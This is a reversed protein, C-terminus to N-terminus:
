EPLVALGSQRAADTLGRDFTALTVPFNLNEQWTLAAALHVADYGRLGFECALRDARAVLEESIPIRQYFLWDARFYDLAIAYDPKTLFNMRLLRTLGAAIEARTMLSTASMEASNVWDHVDESGAEVIYHKILASTDFYLNM